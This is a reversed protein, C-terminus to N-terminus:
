SNNHEWNFLSEGLGHYCASFYPHDFLGGIKLTIYDCVIPGGRAPRDMLEGRKIEIPAINQLISEVETRSMGNRVAGNIFQVIDAYTAKVGIRKAVDTFPISDRERAIIAVCGAIACLVVSIMGYILIKRLKSTTM